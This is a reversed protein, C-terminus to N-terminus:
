HRGRLWRRLLVIILGLGALSLMIVKIHSAFWLFSQLLGRGTSIVQADEDPFMIPEDWRFTKLSQLFGQKVCGELSFIYIDDQWYWALRLDRALEEWILPPNRHNNIKVGGGTSGLGISQAEPAYSWLYGAGRPRMFSTYLMWVERDAPVDVLGALRQLLSSRAKREDAIVPFQYSDIWYGDMKIRAVLDAYLKKASQLRRHDMARRWIVPVLKPLARWKDQLVLELEQINPEIDLGVGSWVLGNEATWSRFANYYEMALHANDINFWYGQDKPYLFWAIVPVGAQNLRKVVQSREPSFDLVGLSVSGRLFVLDNILSPDAFLQKLLEADLECFFTIRPKHM